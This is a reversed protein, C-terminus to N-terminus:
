ATIALVVLACPPMLLTFWGFGTRMVRAAVFGSMVYATVAFIALPLAFIAWWTSEREAGYSGFNAFAAAVVIALSGFAAGAAVVQVAIAAAIGAIVDSATTSTTSAPGTPPPSTTIM